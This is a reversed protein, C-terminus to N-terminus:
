IALREKMYSRIQKRALGLRNEVSKYNLHLTDSIESIKMGNYINLVYVERQKSTLHAIGHELLETIEQVSYISEVSDSVGRGNQTKYLYHEFEDVARRHRWYDNVLNRAITFVLCPLTITTIMKDSTLLREFVNQVIDEAIDSRGVRGTVFARLEKCHEQYYTAVIANKSLTAEM